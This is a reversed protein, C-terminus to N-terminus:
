INQPHRQQGISMRIPRLCAKHALDSGSGKCAPFSLVGIFWTSSASLLKAEKKVEGHRDFYTPVMSAGTLFSLELCARLNGRRAQFARSRRWASISGVSLKDLKESRMPGEGPSNWCAVGHEEVSVFGCAVAVIMRLSPM